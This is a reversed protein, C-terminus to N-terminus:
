VVCSSFCLILRELKRALQKIYLTQSVMYVSTLKALSTVPQFRDVHQYVQTPNRTVNAMKLTLIIGSMELWSRNVLWFIEVRGKTALIWCTIWSVFVM